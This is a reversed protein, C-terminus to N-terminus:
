ALSMSAIAMALPTLVDALARARAERAPARLRAVRASPADPGLAQVVEELSEGLLVSVAVFADQWGQPEAEANV